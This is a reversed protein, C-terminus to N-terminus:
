AWVFTKKTNAREFMYWYVERNIRNLIPFCNKFFEILIERLFLNLFDYSSFCKNYHTSIKERDYPFLSREEEQTAYGPKQKQIDTEWAECTFRMIWYVCLYTQVCWIGIPSTTLFVDHPFNARLRKKNGISPDDFLSAWLSLSMYLFFAVRIFLSM